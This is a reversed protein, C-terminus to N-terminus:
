SSQWKLWIGPYYSRANISVSAVSSVSPTLRTCSGSKWFSEGVTSPNRLPPGQFSPAVQHLLFQPLRPSIQIELKVLRTFIHKFLQFRIWEQPEREMSWHPLRSASQKWWDMRWTSENENSGREQERMFSMYVYHLKSALTSNKNYSNVIVILQEDKITSIPVISFSFAQVAIM